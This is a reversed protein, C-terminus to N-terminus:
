SSQCMSYLSILKHKVFFKNTIKFNDIPISIRKTKMCRLRRRIFEDLDRFLDRVNSFDTVFYNAFGRTVRNTRMCLDDSFNHSRITLNKIKDKFKEVSKTCVTIGCHSFHFGLFDFGKYFSTIKTKGTSLKLQLEDEIVTQVIELAKEIIPTSKALVVFDDAYRVFVHGNEVLKKDLVDLVINAILPSIVGGQPTGKSTKSFVGDEMVGAKLFKRLTRLINGDAIRQAVLKMILLHPINDFFGHIDADLILRNGQKRLRIIERIAQHCNRKPRFGYSWDSFYPEFYPEILRRIVEQAVRDRVAPIGLPRFKGGGKSIYKRRLPYPLYSGNKLRKMLATLNENLNYEFMKISVRDIGAAGRNKKVAKYSKLMLGMTIRGTLSHVKNATLITVGSVYNPKTVKAGPNM